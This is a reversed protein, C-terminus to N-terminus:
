SSHPRFTGRIVKNVPLFVAVKADKRAMVLPAAATPPTTSIVTIIVSDTSLLSLACPQQRERAM